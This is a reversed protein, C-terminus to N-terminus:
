VDIDVEGLDTVLTFSLSLKEKEYTVKLNEVGEIYPHEQVCETVIRKCENELYEQSFSYGLLDTFEEGFDWSYIPWEYRKTRLANQVWMEIADLGEVIEGTLTMTDWDIGFDRLIYDEENDEELDNIDSDFEEDDDFPFLGGTDSM